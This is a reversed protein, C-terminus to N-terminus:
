FLAKQITKAPVSYAFFL